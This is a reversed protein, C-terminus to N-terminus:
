DEAPLPPPTPLAEQHGSGAMMLGLSEATATAADVVGMLRGEFIV